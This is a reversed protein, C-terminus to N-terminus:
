VVGDKKTRRNNISNHNIVTHDANVMTEDLESMMPLRVIFRAGGQESNIVWVAGGHEDVIKKVIALGLGSGKVKTTVYPEFIKNAVDAAIGKGNDEVSLEVCAQGFHLVCKTELKVWGNGGITELSNKLLNHVLQRLRIGDALIHPRASDLSMEISM